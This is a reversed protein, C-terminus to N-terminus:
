VNKTYKTTIKKALINATKAIIALERIWEKKLLDDEPPPPINVHNHNNLENM